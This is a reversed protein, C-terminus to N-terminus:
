YRRPSCCLERAPCTAVDPRNHKREIADTQYRPHLKAASAAAESITCDLVKVGKAIAGVRALRNAALARIYRYRLKAADGRKIM